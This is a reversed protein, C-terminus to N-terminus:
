ISNSQPITHDTIVIIGGEYILCGLIHWPKHACKLVTCPQKRSKASKHCTAIVELYVLRSHMPLLYQLANVYLTLVSSFELVYM